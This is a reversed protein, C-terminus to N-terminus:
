PLPEVPGYFIRQVLYLIQSVLVTRFCTHSGINTWKSRERRQLTLGAVPPLGSRGRVPPFRRTQGWASMESNIFTARNLGRRPPGNHITEGFRDNLDRRVEEAFYAAADEESRSRPLSWRRM